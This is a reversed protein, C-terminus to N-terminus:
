FSMFFFVRSVQLIVFLYKQIKRKVFFFYFLFFQAPDPGVMRPQAQGPGYVTPQASTGAWLWYFPQNSHQVCYGAFVVPPPSFTVQLPFARNHDDAITSPPPTKRGERREETERRLGKETKRQERERIQEEEEEETRSANAANITAPIATAASFGSSQPQAEQGRHLSV